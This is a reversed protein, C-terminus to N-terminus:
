DAVASLAYSPGSSTRNPGAAASLSEGLVAANALNRPFNVKGGELHSPATGIASFSEGM